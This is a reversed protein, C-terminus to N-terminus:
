FVQVASAEIADRLQPHLSARTMVDAPAQLIRGLRDKVRALEILSFGPDDFDFFLDVDSSPEAEDRATSGFLFLRQVGLGRLEGAHTRLTDIAQDRRM